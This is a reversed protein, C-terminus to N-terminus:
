RVRVGASYLNATTWTQQDARPEICVIFDTLHWAEQKKEALEKRLAPANIASKRAEAEQEALKTIRGSQLLDSTLWVLMQEELRDQRIRPM